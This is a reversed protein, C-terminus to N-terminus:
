FNHHTIVQLGTINRFDRPNHTVLPWGKALATAAIWGDDVAIPQARREARLQGWHQCIKPSSHIVQYGALEADLLARKKSGWRAREAGEIYEAVTMFSVALTHGALDLAYLAARTDGKMRYGVINTDLLLNM